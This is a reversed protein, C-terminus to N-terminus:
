GFVGLFVASPKTVDSDIEGLVGTPKVGAGGTFHLMNLLSVM